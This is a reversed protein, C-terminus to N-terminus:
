KGEKKKLLAQRSDLQKLKEQCQEITPYYYVPRRKLESKLSKLKIQLLFLSQFPRSSSLFHSLFHFHSLFLPLSILLSFSLLCSLFVSLSQFFSFSLLLSFNLVILVVSVNYFVAAILEEKDVDKDSHVSDLEHVTSMLAPSSDITKRRVKKKVKMLFPSSPTKSSLPSKSQASKTSNILTNLNSKFISDSYSPSNSLTSTSPSLNRSPPTLSLSQSDSRSPLILPTIQSKISSITNFPDAAIQCTDVTQQPIVDMNEDDENNNGNKIDTKMNNNSVNKIDNKNSNNIDNKKESKNENKNKHRNNNNENKLSNSNSNLELEETIATKLNEEKESLFKNIRNSNTKKEENKSSHLRVGKSELSSSTGVIINKIMTKEGNPNKIKIEENVQGKSKKNDVKMNDNKDDKKSDYQSEKNNKYENSYKKDKRPTITDIDNSNNKNIENDSKSNSKVITPNTAETSNDNIDYDNTNANSSYDSKNNDNNTNKDDDDNDKKMRKLNKSNLVADPNVSASLSHEAKALEPGPGPKQSIKFIMERLSGTSGGSLM